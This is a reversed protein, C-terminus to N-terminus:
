SQEKSANSSQLVHLVPRHEDVMPRRRLSLKIPQDAHLGLTEALAIVETESPGDNWSIAIRLSQGDQSRSRTVSWGAYSTLTWGSQLAARLRDRAAILQRLETDTLSCPTSM